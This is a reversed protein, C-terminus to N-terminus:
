GGRTLLRAARLLLRRGTLRKVKGSTQKRGVRKM